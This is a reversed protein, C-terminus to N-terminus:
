NVLHTHAMGDFVFRSVLEDDEVECIEVVKRGYSKHRSAHIFIDVNGTIQHRALDFNLNGHSAILYQLRALADRCSNAHLTTMCGSHGTNIAQLFTDAADAKRIEGVLIRDPRLRLATEILTRMTIDSSERKPCELARHHPLWDFELEQTDECTIVVEDQPIYRALARLLTTKGSGTNGSAIINKGQEIADILYDLMPQSMAGFEVLQEATLTEKPAIRLTMAAGKPTVEPLTACVRSCDPLRADLIPSDRTLTQNLATSLQIIFDQFSQNSEFQIDTRTIKGNQEVSIANFRDVFIETTTADEYLPKLPAFHEEVWRWEYEKDSPVDGFITTIFSLRTNDTTM